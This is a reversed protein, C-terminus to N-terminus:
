ITEAIARISSDRAESRMEACSSNYAALTSDISERSVRGKEFSERFEHMAYCEGASAAIIWHKMAREVNGSKYEMFGLNCRAGENGAMAAAELHFKAKKMYGGEYYIHGLNCHADSCGLDTARTYLEMAKAHDQQLGIKGRYYYGALLNISTADNAEVRKMLEGFMEENTKGM